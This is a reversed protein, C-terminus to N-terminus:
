KGGGRPRPFTATLRAATLAKHYATVRVQARTISQVMPEFKANAKAVAAFSGPAKRVDALVAEARAKDGREM